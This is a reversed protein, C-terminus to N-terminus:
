KELPMTEFGRSNGHVGVQQKDTNRIFLAVMTHSHPEDWAPGWCGSYLTEVQGQQLESQLFQPVNRKLM